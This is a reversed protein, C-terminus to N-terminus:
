TGAVPAVRASKNRTRNKKNEVRANKQVSNKKWALMKQTEYQKKM